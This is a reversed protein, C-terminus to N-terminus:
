FVDALIEKGSRTGENVLMAVPKNWSVNESEERGNRGIVSMTPLRGLFPQLYSLEAGGWGDRLDLVLAQADKLTGSQLEQLLLRQYSFGAYSWIHIYGIHFGNKDSIRASRQMAQLFAENPRIVQPTVILSQIPDNLQHRIHLTVRQDAKARFSEISRYPKGDVDVIEDGVRLGAQDAPLGALIGTVFTKDAFQRAYAGIGIYSAEGDPFMQQLRSHLPGSFIGLLEYYAQDDPTYYETHSAGLESLMRNILRARDQRNEAAAVLPRYRDGLLKWDLGHLSKDYFRDRVTEWVEEFVKLQALQSPQAAQRPTAAPEAEGAQAWVQIRSAALGADILIVGFL